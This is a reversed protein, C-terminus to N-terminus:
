YTTVTWETLKAEKILVPSSTTFRGATIETLLMAGTSSNSRADMQVCIGPYFLLASLPPYIQHTQIAPASTHAIM